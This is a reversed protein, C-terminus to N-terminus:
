YAGSIQADLATPDCNYIRTLNAGSTDCSYIGYSSNAADRGEFFVKTADPSLVPQHVSYTIFGAPFPINLPQIGSGDYNMITYKPFSTGPIIESVLIKNVQSGNSPSPQADIEKSCSIQFLCLAIAFCSLLIAGKFLNRM